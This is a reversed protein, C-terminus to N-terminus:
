AVDFEACIYCSTNQRNLTVTPMMAQTSVVVVVMPVVSDDVVSPVLVVASDVEVGVGGVLPVVIMGVLTAVVVAQWFSIAVM